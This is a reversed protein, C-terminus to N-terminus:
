CPHASLFKRLNLLPLHLFRSEDRPPFLAMMQVPQPGFTQIADTCFPHQSDHHIAVRTLLTGRYHRLSATCSAANGLACGAHWTFHNNGEVWCSCRVCRIWNQAGMSFLSIWLFFLFSLLSRIATEQWRFSPGLSSPALSKESAHLSLVLLFPWSKCCLLNQSPMLSLLEAWPPGPVEM